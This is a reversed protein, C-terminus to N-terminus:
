KMIKNTRSSDTAYGMGDNSTFLHINSLTVSITHLSILEAISAPTSITNSNLNNDANRNIKRKLKQKM